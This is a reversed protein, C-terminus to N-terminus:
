FLGSLLGSLDIDLEPFLLGIIQSAVGLLVGLITDFIDGEIGAPSYVAAFEIINHEYIIGETGDYKKPITYKSNAIYTQGDAYCEWGDFVKGAPPIVQPLIVYKGPTQQTKLPAVSNDPIMNYVGTVGEQLIFVKNDIDYVLVSGYMTGGQLDFSLVIQEDTIVGTERLSKLFDNELDVYSSASSSFSLAGFLMMVSLLVALVKKM